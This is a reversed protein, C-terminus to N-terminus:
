SAHGNTARKQLTGEVMQLLGALLGTLSTAGDGGVTISRLEEPQPLAAAIEPL